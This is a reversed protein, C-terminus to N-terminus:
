KWRRDDALVSCLHQRRQELDQLAATRTRGTQLLAADQEALEVGRITESAEMMTRLLAEPTWGGIKKRPQLPAEGYRIGRGLESELAEIRQAWVDQLRTRVQIEVPCDDVEAIIHVARYGNRPDGRRDDVGSRPFRDVIRAVAADQDGLGGDHVLRVGAIDQMKSLRTKERRLKDVIASTTKLRSTSPLGLEESLIARVNAMAPEYDRRVTELEKLDDETLENAVRLREGLRNLQSVTLSRPM